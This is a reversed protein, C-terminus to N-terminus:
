VRVLALDAPNAVMAGTLGAIASCVCKNLLTPEHGGNKAKERLYL